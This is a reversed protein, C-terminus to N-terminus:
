PRYCLFPCDLEATIARLYDRIAMRFHSDRISLKLERGIDVGRHYKSAQDTQGDEYGVGSIHLLGNPDIVQVIEVSYALDLALGLAGVFTNALDIAIHQARLEVKYLIPPFIRLFSLIAYHFRWECLNEM